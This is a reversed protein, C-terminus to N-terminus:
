WVGAPHVTELGRRFTTIHINTIRITEQRRVQYSGKFFSANQKNSSMIYQFQTLAKKQLRAHFPPSKKMKLGLGIHHWHSPLTIGIHHCHSALIIGIHHWHLPHGGIGHHGHLTRRSRDQPAPRTRGRLCKKGLQVVRALSISM